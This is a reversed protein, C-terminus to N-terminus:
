LSAGKHSPTGSPVPLGRGLMRAATRRRTALLEKDGWREVARHYEELLGLQGLYNWVSKEKVGVEAAMEAVTRRLAFRARYWAPDRAWPSPVARGKALLGLVEAAHSVATPTCGLQRAVKVLSGRGNLRARLWGPEYLKPFKPRRLRAAEYPTRAVHLGWKRLHYLAAHSVIGAAQAMAYQTMGARVRAVWWAKTNHAYQAPDTIVGLRRAWQRVSHVECGLAAAAEGPAKGQTLLLRRLVAESM